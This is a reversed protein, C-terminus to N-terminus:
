RIALRVARGVGGGPEAFVPQLVLEVGPPLRPIRVTFTVPAPAVRMAAPLGSDTSDAFVSVEPDGGWAGPWLAAESPIGYGDLPTGAGDPPLGERVMLMFPAPLGGPRPSLVDVTAERGAEVWIRGSPSGTEGNVRLLPRPEGEGTYFSGLLAGSLAKREGLTAELIEKSRGDRGPRIEIRRSGQTLNWEPYARLDIRYRRPIGDAMLPVHIANGPPFTGGARGWVIELFPDGLASAVVDLVGADRVDPGFVPSTMAAGPGAPRYVGGAEEVRRRAWSSLPPLKGRAPELLGPPDIEIGPAHIMVMSPAGFRGAWIWRSDREVFADVDLRFIGAEPLPLQFPYFVGEGPPNAPSFVAPRMSPVLYNGDSKELASASVVFRVPGTFSEDAAFRIGLTKRARTAERIDFRLEVPAIGPEPGPSIRAMPASGALAALVSLWEGPEGGGLLDERWRDLVDLEGSEADLFFGGETRPFVADFWRQFPEVLPPCSRVVLVNEHDLDLTCNWSGLAISRGDVLVFKTGTGSRLPIDFIALTERFRPRRGPDSTLVRVRVGRQAAALCALVVRPDQFLMHAVDVSREAALVERAVVDSLNERYGFHVSGEGGASLPVAGSSEEPAGGVGSYRGEWLAEFAALFRGALVPERLCVASHYSSETDAVTANWDGTWLWEGDVVAFKHHLNVPYPEGRDSRVEIGGRRLEDMADRFRYLDLDGETLVRVLVGRGRAELLAGVVEPHDMRLMALDVTRQSGALLRAFLASPDCGPVAGHADAEVICVSVDPLPQALLASGALIGALCIRLLM